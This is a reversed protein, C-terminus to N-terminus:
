HEHVYQQSLQVLIDSIIANLRDYTGAADGMNFLIWWRKAMIHTHIENGVWAIYGCFRDSKLWHWDSPFEIAIRHTEPDVYAPFGEQTLRQIISEAIATPIESAPTNPYRSRTPM